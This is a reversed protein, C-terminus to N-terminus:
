TRMKSKLANVFQAKTYMNLGANARLNNIEALMIEALARVVSGDQALVNNLAALDEADFDIVPAVYVDITNGAAEWKALQRRHRNGMDDPFSMEIGNITAIIGGDERYKATTINM